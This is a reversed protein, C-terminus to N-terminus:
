SLARKMPLLFRWTRPSRWRLPASLCFAGLIEGSALRPMYKKKQAETGFALLPIQAASNTVSLATSLAPYVRAVEELMLVYSVTDLGPGGWQEPVMMGCCGMEALKRVAEVPYRETREWEKVNPRVEAEMFQRVTDRILKQQDTLSFDM